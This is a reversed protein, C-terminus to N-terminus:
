LPEESLVKLVLLSARPLLVTAHPDLMAEFVSDLANNCSRHHFHCIITVQVIKYLPIRGGRWSM